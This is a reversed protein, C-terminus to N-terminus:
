EELKYKIILEQYQKYIWVFSDKRYNHLDISEELLDSLKIGSDAYEFGTLLANDVIKSAIFVNFASLAFKYDAGVVILCLNFSKEFVLSM